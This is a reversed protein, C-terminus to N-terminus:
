IKLLQAPRMAVSQLFIPNMGLNHYCPGLHDHDCPLENLLHKYYKEAKDYQGMKFLLTSFSFVSSGGDSADYENKMYDYIPKLSNDNDSCLTMQIIWVRDQYDINVLRFISGLMILVEQEDTLFSNSTINVFPKIGPLTSDLDIEFLIHQLETSSTSSTLFSSALRRDLSTSLFSTMSIFQAISVKLTQLEDNTIVQGQYVRISTSCQLKQLQEHIDRIFFRFLFLLDIDQMRLAKNLLRYLFSERTYWRLARDAM